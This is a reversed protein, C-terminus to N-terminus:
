SKVRTTYRTIGHKKSIEFEKPMLTVVILYDKDQPIEDALLIDHTLIASRRTCYFSRFPIISNCCEPIYATIDTCLYVTATIEM